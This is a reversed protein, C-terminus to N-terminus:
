LYRFNTTVPGILYLMVFVLGDFHVHNELVEIRNVSECVRERFGVEINCM